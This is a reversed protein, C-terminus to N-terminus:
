RAPGGSPAAALRRQYGRFLGLGFEALAGPRDRIDRLVLPSWDGQPPRLVNYYGHTLVFGARQQGPALPPLAFELDLRAGRDPLVHSNGDTAALAQRFDRGDPERALTPRLRRPPAPLPRERSLAAQDIRWFGVGGSVRVRVPGGGVGAPLPVAVRREAMPGVTPIVAVPLWRGGVEAEVRLDLGERERWARIRAGADPQNGKALYGELHSDMLAFFRGMLADIWPTNALELELLRRGDGAGAGAADAAFDLELSERLPPSPRRALEGLDSQWLEGDAARVLATADRGDQDRAGRPPTAPGAGVLRADFSSLVRLEPPHDVVVLELRDTYQTEHAENGLRARVTTGAPLPTPLLDDRAISAFAAGSYAEGVLVLRGDQEVYFFPCSSKTLIIILGIGLLVAAFISTGVVLYKITTAAGDKEKYLVAVGKVQQLDVTVLRGRQDVGRVLPFEVTQVALQLRRGDALDFRFLEGAARVETLPVPEARTRMVPSCSALAFAALTLLAIAGETRGRQRVRAVV